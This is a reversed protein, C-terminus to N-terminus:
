ESYINKWQKGKGRSCYWDSQTERQWATCYAYGTDNDIDCHKCHKCLVASRKIFKEVCSGSYMTKIYETGSDDYTYLYVIEAKEFEEKTAKLRIRKGDNKFTIITKQDTM